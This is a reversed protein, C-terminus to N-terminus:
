ISDAPIASYIVWSQNHDKHTIDLFVMTRSQCWDKHVGMDGYFTEIGRLRLLENFQFM